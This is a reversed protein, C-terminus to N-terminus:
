VSVIVPENKLLEVLEEAEKIKAAISSPPFKTQAWATAFHLNDHFKSQLQLVELPTKGWETALGFVVQQIWAVSLAQSLDADRLIQGALGVETMSLKYSYESARILAKIKDGEAEDEPALYQELGAIARGINVDDPGAKGTHDFDHFLAAVLLNRRERKTLDFRYFVCADFCLWLVHCMHRFNHYPHRLNQAHNFVARFYSALDGDYVAPVGKVIMPIDGRVELTPSM